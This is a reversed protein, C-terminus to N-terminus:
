LNNAAEVLYSRNALRTWEVSDFGARGLLDLIESRSYIRVDGDKSFAIFLNLIQRIPAPAYYDAIMLRGGKKLVRHMETLAIDPKPYHHFSDTCLVLDFSENQWPLREVDGVRLDANTGLKKKAQEIMAQSLDLGSQAKCCWTTISALLVGTGCGIDLVSDFVFNDLKQLVEPYLARAHRGDNAVDYTVAQKEFSALSQQKRDKRM